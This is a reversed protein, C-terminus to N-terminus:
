HASNESLALPVATSGFLSEFERVELARGEHEVEVLWLAHGDGCFAVIRNGLLRLQPEGRLPELGPLLKSRLIRLVHEEADTFAGPYPPAVGRILNHIRTAPLHWDIRGDEPRRGGFYSGCSLDQARHPATGAILSPLAADLALEAAFTVKRFVDGATDDPYIPVRQQAVIPGADPKEVMAHLTAGTECEGNIVAWNVPVRGRYAPLLSGHMNYAGRSATALLAAPLMRRYYFSFIFDPELASIRKRWDPTGPDTPSECPLDNIRALEAVSSFWINETAEDEHTLVLRVDVGHALLVSLCRCGVEHYAFVVATTM